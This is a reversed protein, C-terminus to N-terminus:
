YRPERCNPKSIFDDITDSWKSLFIIPAVIVFGFLMIIDTMIIPIVLIIILIIGLCKSMMKSYKLKYIPDIYHHLLIVMGLSLILCVLLTIVSIFFPHKSVLDILSYDSLQENNFGISRNFIIPFKYTVPIGESMPRYDYRVFFTQLILLAM